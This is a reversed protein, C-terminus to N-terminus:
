EPPLQRYFPDIMDEMASMAKSRMNPLLHSYTDLTISMTSHGLIEQVIKPHVAKSLLLTACTHRLDHFRVEPLNMRKIIKKFRKTVIWPHLPKGSQNPFM